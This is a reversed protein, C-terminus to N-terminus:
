EGIHEKPWHAALCLHHDFGSVMISDYVCYGVVLVIIVWVIVGWVRERITAKTFRAVLGGLFKEM